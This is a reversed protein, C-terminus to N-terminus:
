QVLVAAGDELGTPDLAVKEGAGLGARIEVQDGSVQGVAIWRLRAARGDIVYVGTLGGRSFVARQPVMPMATIEGKGASLILRAFVGSRLGQAAPLDARLEFRHTSPDGARGLSRVKVTLADAQGDVRAQLEQGVSLSAAEGADVTAWVELGGEGEIEIVPSGPSVVDGVNVPRAAVTGAFPARLVAYSLQDRAGQVAAEAAAAQARAQEVERPTSADKALLNEARQQDAQASKLGAETAALAARLASDELRAVVVGKVVHEGEHFPLEMVSAPMRASLTARDRARVTAPVARM